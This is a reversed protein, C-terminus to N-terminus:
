TFRKYTRLPADLGGSAACAEKIPSLKVQLSGSHFTGELVHFANIKYM